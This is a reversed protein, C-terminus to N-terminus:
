AFAASSRLTRRSRLRRSRRRRAPRKEYDEILVAVTEGYRAEAESLEDEPKAMLADLVHRWHRHEQQTHIAKPPEASAVKRYEAVATGSAM